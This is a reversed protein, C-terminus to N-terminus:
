SYVSPPFAPPRVDHGLDYLKLSSLVAGSSTQVTSLTGQSTGVVVFGSAICVSTVQGPVRVEVVDVLLM